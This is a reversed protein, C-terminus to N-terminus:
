EPQVSQDSARAFERTSVVVTRLIWIFLNCTYETMGEIRKERIKARAATSEKPAVGTRFRLACAAGTRLATAVM